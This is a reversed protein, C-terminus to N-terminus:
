VAVYQIYLSGPSREGNVQWRLLYKAVAFDIMRCPFGVKFWVLVEMVFSYWPKARCLISWSQARHWRIICCSCCRYSSSLFRAEWTLGWRTRASKTCTWALAAFVSGAISWTRWASDASWFCNMSWWSMESSSVYTWNTKFSLNLALPLAFSSASTPSNRCYLLEM